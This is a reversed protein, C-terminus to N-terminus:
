VSDNVQQNIKENVLYNIGWLAINETDISAKVEVRHNATWAYKDVWEQMFPLIIDKSNMIGGSVIVRDPDYAHIMNVIGASWVKMINEVVNKAVQNGERTLDFLRKFDITSEQKLLEKGGPTEEILSPLRWSASQSEVCGINGCNCQSGNIDVTFHGGLCGAQYHKGHLLKGNIMAAGGIGTGLTMMVIDDTGRGEGQQWEGVLATRADNEMVIPLQYTTNAWGNFDFQIAEEHKANIALVRNNDVDVIGPMCLGIGGISDIQTKTKELLQDILEELVLVVKLFSQDSMSPASCSYLLQDNEIIGAKINTGGLDICINRM